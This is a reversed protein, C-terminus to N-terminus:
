CAIVGRGTMVFDMRVDHPEAPFEEPALEHATYCVGLAITPYRMARLTADYYGGGQGLRHGQRTYALMPVVVYAPHVQPGNGCPHGLADVDLLAYPEWVNFVMPHGPLVVRPLAVMFGAQWLEGVLPRVDPEYRTPYFLAVVAPGRAFLLTRLHNILKWHTTDRQDADLVRRQARLAQRLVTKRTHRPDMGM